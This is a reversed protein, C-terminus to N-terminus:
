TAPAHLAQIANRIVYRAPDDSQGRAALVRQEILEMAAVHQARQAPTLNDALSSVGSLVSVHGYNGIEYVSIFQRALHLAQTSDVNGLQAARAVIALKDSTPDHEPQEVPAPQSAPAPQAAAQKVQAPQALQDAPAAEAPQEPQERAQMEALTPSAPWAAPATSALEAAVEAKTRRKRAPKADAAPEIVAPETPADSSDDPLTPEGRPEYTGAAYVQTVGMVQGDYAVAVSADACTLTGRKRQFGAFELFDQLEQLNDFQLNM